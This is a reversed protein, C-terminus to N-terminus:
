DSNTLKQRILKQTGPDLTSNKMEKLQTEKGGEIQPLAERLRKRNKTVNISRFYKTTTYM